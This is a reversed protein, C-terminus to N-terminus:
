SLRDTFRLLEYLRSGCAMLAATPVYGRATVTHEIRHWASALAQVRQIFEVTLEDVTGVLGTISEGLEGLTTDGNPLVPQAYQTSTM